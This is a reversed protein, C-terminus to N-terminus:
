HKKNITLIQYRRLIPMMDNIGPIIPVRINIRAGNECLFKLNSLIMENSWGTFYQHEGSDMIKYDFLIIDWYELIAAFDKQSAFGCTEICTHIGEEKALKLIEIAIQAPMM